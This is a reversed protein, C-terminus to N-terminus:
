TIEDDDVDVVVAADDPEPEDDGATVKARSAVWNDPQELLSAGLEDPVEITEGQAVTRGGRPALSVSGYPGVYKVKM